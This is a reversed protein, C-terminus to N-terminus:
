GSGALVTEARWELGFGALPAAILRAGLWVSPSGLLEARPRGSRRWDACAGLGAVGLARVEMGEQWPGSVRWRGDWATGIGSVAGKVAQYDRFARVGGKGPLFRVGALEAARGALVAVQVRALSAGRPGFEAPAIRQIVRLLVRRQVECPQDALGARDIVLAGQDAVVVAEFARGALGDLAARAEALHAAVEALRAANLGLPALTILAKRAKVRDFRLVDNSPDEVWVAGIGRLYDRLEARTAGLLPRAWGIGQGRWAPVMAALGDVGAGRALRMLFTEAVDDQTHGFAVCGIGRGRAWEAMLERRARRAQDQLNGKRDWQWALVVHPVGLGACVRGVLAAEAAAEARLGHDVTAVAVQLGAAVALQLMAMSDGGGSVALGLPANAADGLGRMFRGMLDPGTLDPQPQSVSLQM